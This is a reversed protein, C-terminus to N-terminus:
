RTWEWIPEDDYNPDNDAYLKIRAPSDENFGYLMASGFPPADMDRLHTSKLWELDEPDTLFVLVRETEDILTM